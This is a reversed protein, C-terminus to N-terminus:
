YIVLSPLVQIDGLPIVEDVARYKEFVVAELGSNLKGENKLQRITALVEQKTYEQSVIRQVHPYKTVLKEVVSGCNNNVRSPWSLDWNVQAPSFDPLADFFDVSQDILVLDQLSPLEFTISSAGIFGGVIHFARLNPLKLVIDKGSPNTPGDSSLLELTRLKAFRNLTEVANRTFDVSVGLRELSLPPDVMRLYELDPVKLYTLSTLNTFAMEMEDLEYDM